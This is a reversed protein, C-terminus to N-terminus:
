GKDNARPSKRKGTLYVAFRRRFVFQRAGNGSALPMLGAFRKDNKRVLMVKVEDPVDKIGKGVKSM